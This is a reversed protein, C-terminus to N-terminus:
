DDCKEHDSQRKEREGFGSEAGPVASRDREDTVMGSNPAWSQYICVHQSDQLGGGGREVGGGEGM